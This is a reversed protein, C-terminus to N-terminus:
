RRRTEGKKDLSGEHADWMWSGRPSPTAPTVSQVPRVPESVEDGGAAKELSSDLSKAARPVFKYAALVLVAIIVITRLKM